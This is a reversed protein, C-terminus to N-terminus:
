TLADVLNVSPASNPIPASIPILVSLNCALPGIPSSSNVVYLNIISPFPCIRLYYILLFTLKLKCWLPLQITNRKGTTPTYSLQNSRWGTVSSTAPELGTMRAMNKFKKITIFGNKKLFILVNM